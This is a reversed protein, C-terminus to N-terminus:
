STYYGQVDVVLDTRGHPNYLEIYGDASVPVVTMSAIDTRARYNLNSTNPVPTGAAHATIHGDETANTSTLNVVVAAVNAPVGNLGTVKVRTASGPGAKGAPAGQGIRTDLVRTPNAPVFLGSTGVDSGDRNHKFRGIYDVVLDVEGANNYLGLGSRGVDMYSINTVTQGRGFNLDSTNWVRQGAPYVTVHSAETPATATVQLALETDPQSPDTVSSVDAALANQEGAGVRGQRDGIATRTDLLRKPSGITFTSGAYGGNAGKATYFGQLDVVLHANGVHNYLDVVGNAGVQVTVRNTTITRGATVNLSSVVPMARGDPYATVFSDVTPDVVTVNMVVATPVAGSGLRFANAIDIKTVSDPGVKGSPAGNGVRTDVLRYNSVSFYTSEVGVQPGGAAAATGIPLLTSGALVIAALAAARSARM